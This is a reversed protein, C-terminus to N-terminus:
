SGEEDKKDDPKPTDWNYYTPQITKDPKPTLSYQDIFPSMIQSMDSEKEAKTYNLFNIEYRIQGLDHKKNIPAFGVIFHNLSFETQPTMDFVTYYEKMLTSGVIWNEQYDTNQYFLAFVCTSADKGFEKGSVM